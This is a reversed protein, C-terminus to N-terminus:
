RSGPAIGRIATEVRYVSTHATLYLTSFDPGGFTLNAAHEELEFVGLYKGDAGHVSIGGAGTTWLRGETDVKM